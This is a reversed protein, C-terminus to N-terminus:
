HGAASHFRTLGDTLGIPKATLGPVATSGIHHIGGTIWAGIAAQIIRAEAEFRAPWDAHYPELRIPDDPLAM